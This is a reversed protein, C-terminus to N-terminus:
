SVIVNISGGAPIHKELRAANLPLLRGSGIDRIRYRNHALIDILEEFDFGLEPYTYPALEMIIKPKMKGLLSRAGRLVPIEFGDVDLKVWHVRKIQNDCIFRDISTAIVDSNVM